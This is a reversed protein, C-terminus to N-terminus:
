PPPLTDDVLNGLSINCAENNMEQIFSDTLQLLQKGQYTGAKKLLPYGGAAWTSGHRQFNEYYFHDLNQYEVRACIEKLEDVDIADPPEQTTPLRAHRAWFAAICRRVVARAVVAHKKSSSYNGRALWLDLLVLKRDPGLKRGTLTLLKKQLFDAMVWGPGHRVFLGGSSQSTFRYEPLRFYLAHMSDGSVLARVQSRLAQPAAEVMADLHAESLVADLKPVTQGAELFQEAYFQVVLQWSAFVSGVAKCPQSLWVGKAVAKMDTLLNKEARDEKERRRQEAQPLSAPGSGRTVPDEIQPRPRKRSLLNEAPQGSTVPAKASVLGASVGQGAKNTLGIQKMPVKRAEAAEMDQLEEIISCAEPYQGRDLPHSKVYGFFDMHSLGSAQAEAAVHTLELQLKHNRQVWQESAEDSWLVPSSNLVLDVIVSCIRSFEQSATAGAVNANLGHAAVNVVAVQDTMVTSHDEAKNSVQRGNIVGSFVM